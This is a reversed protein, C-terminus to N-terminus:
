RHLFHGPGGALGALTIRCGTFDGPLCFDAGPRHLDAGSAWRNLRPLLFWRVKELLFGVGVGVLIAIFIYTALYFVNKSSVEYNIIYFTTTAYALLMFVAVGPKRFLTVLLGLGCGGLVLPTFDLGTLANLYTNFEKGMFQPDGSFLAGGWQLPVVTHYLRKIYSDLDALNAGWLSRSPILTVNLFSVPPNVLTDCVFFAVFFIAAGIAGGAAAMGISRWWVRAPLHKAWLTWLVLIGVAPVILEVVTHIALGLLLLTALLWRGNRAPDEQWRVLCFISWALVLTALTYVEAIVAQSWFTASIGLALGGLLPGIRSSTILRGALYLGSVTGAAYVASLLNVRYAFTGMPLLGGLLKGLLLYVPYGSTHTIGMAYTLAQFEGSDGYLLDPALSRIYCILALIGLGLAIWGDRRDIKTQNKSTSMDAPKFPIPPEWAPALVEREAM